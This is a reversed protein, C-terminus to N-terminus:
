PRRECSRRSDMAEPNGLNRRAMVQKQYSPYLYYDNICVTKWHFTCYGFPLTRFTSTTAVIIRDYGRENM